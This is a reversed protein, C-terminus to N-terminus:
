MSYAISMNSIEYPLSFYVDNYFVLRVLSNNSLNELAENIQIEIQCGDTLNFSNFMFEKNENGNCDTEIVFTPNIKGVVEREKIHEIIAKLNNLELGVKNEITFRMILRPIRICTGICPMDDIHIFADTIDLRFQNEELHGLESIFHCSNNLCIPGWHCIGMLAICAKGDGCQNKLKLSWYDLYKKNIAMDGGGDTCPCCNARVKVCNSDQSCYRLEEKSVEGPKLEYLYKIYFMASDSQIGEEDTINEVKLILGEMTVEIGENIFGESKGVGIRASNNAVEMFVITKGEVEVSDGVALSYKEEIKITRNLKTENLSENFIIEETENREYTQNEKLKVISTQNAVKESENTEKIASEKFDAFNACANVFVITLLLIILFKPKM